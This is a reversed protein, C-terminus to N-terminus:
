DHQRRPIKAQWLLLLPFCLEIGTFMLASLNPIGVQVISFARGVGGMFVSACLIRFLDTHQEIRPIMWLGLMGLSLYYGTIYRYHSDFDPTISSAALWRTTGQTIGVLGILIPIISLIAITFQLGKKM